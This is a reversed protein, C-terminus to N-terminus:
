VNISLELRREKKDLDDLRRKYYEQKLYPRARKTENQRIKLEKLQELKNLLESLKSMETTIIDKNM